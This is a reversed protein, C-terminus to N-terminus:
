LKLKKLLEEFENVYDKIVEVYLLNEKKDLLTHFAWGELSELIYGIYIMENPNIQIHYIKDNNDNLSEYIIKFNLM